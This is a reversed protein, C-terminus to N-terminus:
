TRERRSQPLGLGRVSRVRVVWSGVLLGLLLAAVLPAPSVFVTTEMLVLPSLAAAGAAAGAAALGSRAPSGGAGLVGLGAGALAGLLLVISDQALSAYRITRGICLSEAAAMQVKFGEILGGDPHAKMDTGPISQGIMVVRNHFTENLAAAPMDVLEGANVVSRELVEAPPPNLVVGAVLAGRQVGYQSGADGRVETVGIEIDSRGLGWPGPARPSSLSVSGSTPRVRVQQPEDPRLAAAAMALALSPAALDQGPQQVAVDARWGSSLFEGTVAGWSVHPLLDADLPPEDDPRPLWDPLALIVPCGADRLKQVGAALAEDGPHDADLFGIDFAVVRPRAQALRGLLWGYAERYTMFDDATVTRLEAAEVIAEMGARDIQVGRVTHLETPEPALAARAAFGAKQAWGDFPLFDNLLGRVLAVSLAAAIVAGTLLALRPQAVALRRAADGVPTPRDTRATPRRGDLWSELDAALEEMSGYRDLPDHALAKDLVAELDASLDPRFRRAPDHPEDCVLREIEELPKGRVPRPLNGTLLEYLVVGMAFIDTREDILDPDCGFQEPAMYWPTGITGGRERARLTGAADVAWGGALGFDIVRPDGDRDVLLNSPKLDRHLIGAGHAAHVGRCLRIVLRLRQHDALGHANAFDTVPRAGRLYAMVFYRAERGAIRWPPGVDFVEVVAPHQLRALALAERECRELSAPDHGAAAVIKIAVLRSLNPDHGEYLLGQGHEAILHRAEYRGVRFPPRPPWAPPGDGSQDRPMDHTDQM